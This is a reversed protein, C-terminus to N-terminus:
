TLNNPFLPNLQAAEATGGQGGHRSRPGTKHGGAGVVLVALCLWTPRFRLPSPSPTSTTADLACACASPTTRGCAHQGWFGGWAGHMTWFRARGLPDVWLAIVSVAAEFGSITQVTLKFGGGPNRVTGGIHLGGAPPLPPAPSRAPLAPPPLAPPDPAPPPSKKKGTRRPPPSAKKAGAKVAKKAGAEAQGALLVLILIAFCGAWRSNARILAM